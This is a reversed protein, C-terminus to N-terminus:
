SVHIGSLEQDGLFSFLDNAALPSNWMGTAAQGIIRWPSPPSYVNTVPAKKIHSLPCM